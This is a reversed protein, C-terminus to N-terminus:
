IGRGVHAPVSIGAIHVILALCHYEAVYTQLTNQVFNIGIEDKITIVARRYNTILDTIGFARRGGALRGALVVMKRGNAGM